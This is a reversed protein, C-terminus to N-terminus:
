QHKMIKKLRAIWDRLMILEDHADYSKVIGLKIKWLRLRHRWLDKRISMNRTNDLFDIIDNDTLYEFRM